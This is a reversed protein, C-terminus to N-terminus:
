NNFAKMIDFHIEDMALADELSNEASLQPTAMLDRTSFEDLNTSNMRASLEAVLM